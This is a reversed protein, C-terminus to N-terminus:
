VLINGDLHRWLYWSAVSSYPRWKRGIVALEKKEGYLKRAARKLGADGLSLVDSHGLVFILFMEATWRGIGPVKTLTAIVEESSQSAFSSFDLEGSHVAEALAKLYRVKPGSVGAARLDEAKVALVAKPTLSGLHVLARRLITDAAKISLQQSIISSALDAFPDAGTNAGSGGTGSINGSINDGSVNGDSVNGGLDSGGSRQGLPCPGHARILDAMVPDVAALHAEALAVAEFNLVITIPKSLKQSSVRKIQM